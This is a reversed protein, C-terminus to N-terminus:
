SARTSAARAISGSRAAGPTAAAITGGLSVFDRVKEVVGDRSVRVELSTTGGGGIADYAKAVDGLLRRASIEHNRVLRVHGNPLPFAAMGDFDDPTSVGDSM